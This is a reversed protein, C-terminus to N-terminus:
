PWLSLTPLLPTAQVAAIKTERERKKEVYDHREKGKRRSTIMNRKGIRSKSKVREDEEEGYGKGM